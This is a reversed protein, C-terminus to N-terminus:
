RIVLANIYGNIVDDRTDKVASVKITINGDSDPSVNSFEAVFNNNDMDAASKAGTDITIVTGHVDFKTVRISRSGNYRISLASLNYTRSKDCGSIIIVGTTTSNSIMLADKYVDKPYEIDGVKFTAKPESGAGGWTTSFASSIELSLGSDSGDNALLAVADNKAASTISNWGETGTPGFDVYVDSSTSPDVAPAEKGVEVTTTKVKGASFTVQNSATFNKEIIFTDSGAVLTFTLKSGASTTFPACQLFMPKSEGVKVTVSQGDMVSYKVPNVESLEGNSIKYRGGMNDTDSEIRISNFVLDVEGTNKIVTKIISTLHRMPIYPTQAGVARGQGYMTVKVGGSYTFVGDGYGSNYPTLVEYDYTVGDVPVFDACEFANEEEESKTFTYATGNVFVRLTEGSKWTVAYTQENFAAKSEETELYIKFAETETQPVSPEVKGCAAIAALAFVSYIIKKM